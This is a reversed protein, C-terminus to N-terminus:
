KAEAPAAPKAAEEKKETKKEAKKAAKKHAPKKAETKAPEAPKAEQAFAPAVFALATLVSAIRLVRKM